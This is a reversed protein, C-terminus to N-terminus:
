LLKKLEGYIQPANTGVAIQCGNKSPRVVSLAGAAKAAAEDVSTYKKVEFRLRTACYEVSSINEKGGVAQLLASAFAAASESSLAADPKQSGSGRRRLYVIVGAAVCVLALIILIVYISTDM